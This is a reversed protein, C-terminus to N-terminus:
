WKPHIHSEGRRYGIGGSSGHGGGISGISKRVRVYWPHCRGRKLGRKNREASKGKGNRGHRQIDGEDVRGIDRKKGCVIGEGRRNGSRANGGRGM